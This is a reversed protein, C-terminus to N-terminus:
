AHCNSNEIVFVTHHVSTKFHSVPYKTDPCHPAPKVSNGRANAVEGDPHAMRQMATPAVCVPMSVPHGLISTKLSLKSVDVM